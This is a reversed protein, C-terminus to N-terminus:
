KELYFLRLEPNPENDNLIGHESKAVRKFAKGSINCAERIDERTRLEGDSLYEKVRSVEAELKALSEQQAKSNVSETNPHLPKDSSKKEKKPKPTKESKTPKSKKTDGFSQNRKPKDLQIMVDNLLGELVAVRRELSTVREQLDEEPTLGKGSIFDEMTGLKPSQRHKGM